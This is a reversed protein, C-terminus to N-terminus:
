NKIEKGCYYCYKWDINNINKGCFPCYFSNVNKNNKLSNKYLNTKINKYGKYMIILNIFFYIFGALILYIDIVTLIITIPTCIIISLILSKKFSFAGKAYKLILPVLCYLFTIIIIGLSFYGILQLNVNSINNSLVYSSDLTSTNTKQEILYEDYLSIKSDNNIDYYNSM